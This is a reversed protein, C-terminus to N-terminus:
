VFLARVAPVVGLVPVVVNALQAFLGLAAMIRDFTSVDPPTENALRYTELIARADDASAVTAWAALDRVTLSTQAAVDALTQQAKPSSLDLVTM